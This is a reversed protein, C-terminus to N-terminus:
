IFINQRKSDPHLFSLINNVESAFGLNLIKDAEDFVLYKIDDLNIEKLKLLEVLRGPTAVVINRALKLSNIQQDINEGGILPLSNQKPQLHRGLSRFDDNVQIALERTPTLVLVKLQDNVNVKSKANAQLNLQHLIPLIFAATKGSGTQAEAVVDSGKLILPISMMQIPTATIFKLEDLTKNLSDALKLDKFSM